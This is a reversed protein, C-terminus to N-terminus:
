HCYCGSLCNSLHLDRPLAQMFPQPLTHTHPPPRYYHWYPKLDRYYHWYPKLATFNRCLGAGGAGARTGGLRGGARGGVVEMNRAVAEGGVVEMNRAVAVGGVVEMNRAVAMGGVVEMNRAVAVGGVVEMNRAAALRLGDFAFQDLTWNAWALLLGSVEALSQDLDPLGSVRCHRVQTHACM